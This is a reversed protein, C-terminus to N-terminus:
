DSAPLDPGRRVIFERAGDGIDRTAELAHGGEACFHPVDILAAPDTAILRITGGVPQALLRKRLRLVPLPCLLGRADVVEATDADTM